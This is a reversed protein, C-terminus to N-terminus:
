DQQQQEVRWGHQWRQRSANANSLAPVLDESSGPQPGSSPSDGIHNCYAHLYLLEKLRRTLAGEGGSPVVGHREGRVRLWDHSEIHIAEFVQHLEAKGDTM